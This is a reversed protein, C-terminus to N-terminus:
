TLQGEMPILTIALSGSIRTLNPSGTLGPKSKSTGNCPIDDPPKKRRLKVQLLPKIPLMIAIKKFVHIGINSGFFFFVRLCLKCFIKPHTDNICYKTKVNLMILEIKKM